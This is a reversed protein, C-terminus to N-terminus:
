STLDFLYIDRIDSDSLNTTHLATSDGLSRFLVFFRPIDPQSLMDRYNRLVEHNEAWLIAIKNMEFVFKARHEIPKARPNDMVFRRGGLRGQDSGVGGNVRRRDSWSPQLDESM